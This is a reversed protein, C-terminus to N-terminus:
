RRRRTHTPRPENPPQAGYLKRYVAANRTVIEVYERTETFPISDVFEAIERYHQGENWQAVRDEGANYAALASEVSGFDKKLGALYLTGLRVNYDPDVLRGRSYGVKAKRSLIRATKPLLQMLGYANAGSRADPDFASEQRILGATLAPDLGTHSSWQHISGAFPMPYAALWVERPVTDFPRSELQTFIQRVAVIAVNYHGAAMAQQAAQLLLRPEGTAAYAARLELEASSDFAITRLADARAQRDAAALPITDSLPAAPPVPPISVLVDPDDVNGTGLASNRVYALSQFYNQPYRAQLKEYYARALPVNSAEEALRGLWYLADPTFQSGPFRRLYETLQNTADPSRKLVATWAVRWQSPIADPSTGFGDAVRKYYGSARDRDLQVWYYNGALFLAQETWHSQPARSAASEVTQPMQSDPSVNRYYQTLTFFREADVDPDTIPLAAVSSIGGGLSVGCELIRLEAREKEAGSLLPLLESYETRAEGWLRGNFLAGAHALRDDIPLDLYGSKLTSRLFNLKAITQRGQEVIPYRLYLAQYDEVAELPRGAQEFAEGRLLLLGPKNNTARYSEFAALAVNPQNSALAAGALAELAQDTLVSDPFDARLTQLQAIADAQKNLAINTEAGWYLAYDRLLLDSQARALWKTALGFNTKSYDHYGLALAARAGYINASNQNAFASLKEYASAPNKKRLERSYTELQKALSSSAAETSDSAGSAPTRHAKHAKAQPQTQAQAPGAAFILLAGAAKLSRGVFRVPITRTGCFPRPIHINESPKRIARPSFKWWGTISTIWQSNWFRASVATTNKEPKTSTV